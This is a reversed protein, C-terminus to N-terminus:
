RKTRENVTRENVTREAAYMAACKDRDQHDRWGRVYFKRLSDPQNGTIVRGAYDRWGATCAIGQPDSPQESM